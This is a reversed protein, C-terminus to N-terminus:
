ELAEPASDEFLGQWVQAVQFRSERFESDDVIHPLRQLNLEHVRHRYSLYTDALMTATPNTLCGCAVLAELIRLNDTHEVISPYQNAWRLALYQVLFEIDTIGGVGQKLDFCHQRRTLLESRMRQRMERVDATLGEIDRSQRLINHRVQDFEAIIQPDGAIGRARVLAQHEWTWAQEAQYAAFSEVSSVLLGSGGSPRLRTDVEYLFGSGTPTNLYHIIRQGLRAFFVSNDVCKGGNTYQNNGQSNHLFVLDLDSGFGLEYGGMKGFAIVAFGAQQTQGNQEFQPIGHRQTLYYWALQLVKNVIVYALDTLYDSVKAVPMVHTLEAAAVRLTHTLRFQRLVEMEQEVDDQEVNLLRSALEENLEVLVIPTYLRRPDLLEDLLLPYRTILDAIWPSVACLKVLQSLAMPYEVLLALYASRRIIAELLNIIRLLCVDPAAVASIAALLLPMLRDMRERGRHSLSSYAPSNRLGAILRYANDSGSFNAKTLIAIAQPQTLQAQWIASFELSLQDSADAEVPEGQPSSFVQEFHERVLSTHNDLCVKFAQWDVFGMAFALRWQALPDTPLVHTQQDNFEQLRNETRRLFIYAQTLGDVVYEPLIQCDALVKLVPLIQRQRLRKDQGGRILQFAQGIFEIERIGGAGLKVNGSLGKRQVELAIMRKMERLSEFAGYDLYRRYVFPRLRSSLEDGAKMDGAIVRAKVLAYREWERGHHEYYYEMADFSLAIQGSNGFPRLRADVRFVFGEATNDNLLKILKQTLRIFFQSNLCSKEGGQTEGEEPYAFILDIDSSYNLEHAGLKGMGLVVLQMKQGASDYPQGDQQSQWHMLQALGQQVCADALDSLDTLTESLEALGALDRWAIRVMERRRFQRLVRSLSDFDAINHCLAALSNLLDDNKYANYLTGSVLLDLLLTPQRLCSTYVFNSMLWVATAEAPLQDEKFVIDQEKVAQWFRSLKLNIEENMQPPLAKTQLIDHHM